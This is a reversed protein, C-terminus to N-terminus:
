KKKLLRDMNASTTTGWTNSGYDILPLIYGSYFMKQAEMSVYKSLQKLLSIRSSIVSCLYEIQPTWSLNEDIFIGLLKHKSVREIFTGDCQLTLEPMDNHRRKNGFVMYNPKGLHVRMKHQISWTVTRNLGTQLENGIVQISPNYTHGTADDAFLDSNCNNIFFPLDNIYLLFLTTGLISGQPVGTKINAYDTNNDSIITQKRCNLYSVFSKLSLQNIKYLSLKELLISHDVLDFAKKFDVFLAGAIDVKDICTM